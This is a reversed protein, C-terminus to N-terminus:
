RTFLLRQTLNATALTPLRKIKNNELHKIVSDPTKIFSLQVLRNTNSTCKVIQSCNIIMKAATGHVQFDSQINISM